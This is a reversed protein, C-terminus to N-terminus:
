FNKAFAQEHFLSSLLTFDRNYPLNEDEWKKNRKKIFYAVTQDSASFSVKARNLSRVLYNLNWSIFDGLFDLNAMTPEYTALVECLYFSRKYSDEINKKNSESKTQEMIESLKEYIQLTNRYYKQINEKHETEKKLTTFLDFFEKSDIHQKLITHKKSPKPDILPIYLFLKREAFRKEKPVYHEIKVAEVYNDIEDEDPVPPREALSNLVSVDDVIVRRGEYRFGSYEEEM